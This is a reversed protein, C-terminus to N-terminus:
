MRVMATARPSCRTQRRRLMGMALKAAHPAHLLQRFRGDDRGEASTEFGSPGKVKFVIELETGIQQGFVIYTSPVAAESQVGGRGQASSRGHKLVLGNVGGGGVTGREGAARGVCRRQLVLDLGGLGDRGVKGQRGGGVVGVVGTGAELRAAAAGMMMMLRFQVLRRRHPGAGDIGNRDDIRAGAHPHGAWGQGNRGAPHLLLRVPAVPLGRRSSSVRGATHTQQQM